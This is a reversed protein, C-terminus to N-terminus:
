PAEPMKPDGDIVGRHVFFGVAGRQEDFRQTFQYVHWEATDVDEGICIEVHLGRMPIRPAAEVSIASGDIPGGEATGGWQSHRGLELEDM